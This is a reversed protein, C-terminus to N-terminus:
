FTNEENNLHCYFEKVKVWFELFTNMSGYVIIKYYIDDWLLKVSDLISGECVLFMLLLLLVIEWDIRMRGIETM